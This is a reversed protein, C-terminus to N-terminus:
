AIPPPNDPQLTIGTRGDLRHWVPHRIITTPIAVRSPAPLVAAVSCSAMDPCNGMCNCPMDRHQQSPTHARAMKGAMACDKSAAMGTQAMAQHPMPMAMVTSSLSFALLAALLVAALRKLTDVSQSM